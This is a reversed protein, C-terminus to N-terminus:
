FSGVNIPISICPLSSGDEPLVGHRVKYFSEIGTVMSKLQIKQGTQVLCAMPFMMVKKPCDIAAVHVGNKIWDIKGANADYRVAISDREDFRNGTKILERSNHYIEGGHRFHAAGM